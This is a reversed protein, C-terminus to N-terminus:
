DSIDSFVNGNKLITKGVTINDGLVIHTDYTFDIKNKTIVVKHIDFKDKIDHLFPMNKWRLTEYDHLFLLIETLLEKTHNIKKIKSRSDFNLIISGKFPGLFVDRIRKLIFRATNIDGINQEISKAAAYHFMSLTISQDISDYMDYVVSFDRGSFKKCLTEAFTM